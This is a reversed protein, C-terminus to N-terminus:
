GRPYNHFLDCSAGPCTASAARFCVRSLLEEVPGSACDADSSTSEAIGRADVKRVAQPIESSGDPAGDHASRKKNRQGSRHHAPHGAARAVRNPRINTLWRRLGSQVDIEIRLPRGVAAQDCEPTRERAGVAGGPEVDDVGRA